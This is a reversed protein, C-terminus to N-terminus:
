WIDNQTPAVLGEYFASCSFLKNYDAYRSDNRMDSHLRDDVNTRAAVIKWKLHIVAEHLVKSAASPVTRNVKYSLGDNRSHLTRCIGSPFAGNM